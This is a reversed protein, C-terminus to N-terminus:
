QTVDASAWAASTPPIPMGNMVTRAPRSGLLLVRPLPCCGQSAHAPHVDVSHFGHLPRAIGNRPKSGPYTTAIWLWVYSLAGIRSRNMTCPRPAVPPVTNPNSADAVEHALGGSGHAIHNGALLKVIRDGPELAGCEPEFLLRHVRHGPLGLVDVREEGTDAVVRRCYGLELLPEGLHRRLGGHPPGHGAHPHVVLRWRVVLAPHAPGTLPVDGGALDVPVGIAGGGQGDPDCGVQAVPPQEVIPADDQHGEVVLAAHGLSHQGVVVVRDRPRAHNSIERHRDADQLRRARSM